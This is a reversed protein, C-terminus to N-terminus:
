VHARGIQGRGLLGALRLHKLRVDYADNVCDVGVVTNGPKALLLECVRSAIFGACGTVLYRMSLLVGPRM